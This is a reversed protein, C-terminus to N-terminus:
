EFFAAGLRSAVAQEPLEGSGALPEALDDTGREVGQSANGHTREVLQLTQERLALQACQLALKSVACGRGSGTWTSPGRGVRISLMRLGRRLTAVVSSM